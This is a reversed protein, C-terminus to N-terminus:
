PSCAAHAMRMHVASYWLEQSWLGETGMGGEHPSSFVLAGFTLTRSRGQLWCACPTCRFLQAQPQKITELSSLRPGLRLTPCHLCFIGAAQATGSSAKASDEQVACCSSLDAWAGLEQM